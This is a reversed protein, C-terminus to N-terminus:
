VQIFSDYSKYKNSLSKSQKGDNVLALLEAVFMHREAIYAFLCLHAEPLLMLPDDSDVQVRGIANSLVQRRTTM